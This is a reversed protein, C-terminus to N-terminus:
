RMGVRHTYTDIHDVRSDTGWRQALAGFLALIVAILMIGAILAM